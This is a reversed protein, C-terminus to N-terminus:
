QPNQVWQELWQARTDCIISRHPGESLKFYPKQGFRKPHCLFFLLFQNRTKFFCDQVFHQLFNVFNLLNAYVAHFTDKNPTKRTRIKWCKSQVRLCQIPPSYTNPGFALFYLGSFSRIHVSKVCHYYGLNHM